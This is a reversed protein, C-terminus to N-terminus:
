SFDGPYQYVTYGPGSYKTPSSFSNIGVLFFLMTLFFILPFLLILFNAFALALPIGSNCFGFTHFIQMTDMTIFIYKYHVPTPFQLNTGHQSLFPFAHICPFVIFIMSATLISVGIKLVMSFDFGILAKQHMHEQSDM